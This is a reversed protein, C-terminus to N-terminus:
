RQNWAALNEMVAALEGPDVPKPIHMQFGSVLARTRDESRAFATLAVAPVGGGQEPPLARVQRILAYGDEGPMGIDSVLVDPRLSPLIELAERASAATTVEAQCQSLVMTLMERAEQEDDVVLVRLGRLGSRAHMPRYAVRPVPGGSCMAPPSAMIPLLVTFIAGQGEGASHAEVSGGHLEALHRVIALGLGLGGHTRTSGTDAQRFREFLHPLFSAPIGQGSDRVTIRAQMDARELQVEIKGNRPTFKVANSLLNWVIQQLRTADGLVPGASPDLQVDLALGKAEAGPRVAEVAGEIVAPLETPRTQLRLKGTIIRSVDLLDDILQAQTRTNRELVEIGRATTPGDLRGSRLLHVWGLMTNLPTRLEHSLTALFEDKSRNAAEADARAHQEAMLLKEREEQAQRRHHIEAQLAENAAALEATRMRVHVELEAQMQQLSEETKRRVSIERELEEPSRLALARPVLPVLAVVTVLSALATIVKVVGSLRYLPYYFVVVEMLHTLGCGLIFVGFMWFMWPFPLDRRRRAFRFLVVPIAM